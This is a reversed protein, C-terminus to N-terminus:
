SEEEFLDDLPDTSKVEVRIESLANTEPNRMQAIVKLDALVVPFELEGQIHSILARLAGSVMYAETPAPVMKVHWEGSKVIQKTVVKM